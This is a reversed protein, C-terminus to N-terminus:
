DLTVGRAGTHAVMARGGCREIAQCVKEVEDTLAVMSGGGGAGTLKAGYSHPLAAGILRDLEPSSVGLIALLKQNRNMLAGLREREGRMIAEVGVSSLEGIECIVERAFSSREVFRSVRAVLPGTAAKIGTHGIVFTMRPVDLHHVYWQRTDRRIRWLCREGRSRDVFIGHGHTCVSTDIPSARGQVESEVEFAAEAVEEEHLGGSMAGIAATMAVSVAASSGLGSGSPIESETEITLPRGRWRHAIVTSIYPQSEESLPIGNVTYAAGEKVRCRLRRDIAVATAPEGFVVAHEGFLILKGPASTSVMSPTDSVWKFSKEM